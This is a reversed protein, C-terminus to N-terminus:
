NKAASPKVGHPWLRNRRRASQRAVRPVEPGNAPKVVWFVNLGQRRLVQQEHRLLARTTPHEPQRGVSELLPRPHKPRQGVLGMSYRRVSLLRTTGIRIM